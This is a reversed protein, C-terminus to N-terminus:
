LSISKIALEVLFLTQKAILLFGINLIFGLVIMYVTVRVQPRIFTFSDMNDFFVLKILRMYYGASIISLIILFISVYYFGDSVLPYLLYFKGYFGALPPVGALSFLSVAFIIAQVPNVNLQSLESLNQFTKGNLKVNSILIAFLVINVLVYIYTYLLGSQYGTFSHLSFAILVYGMNAITSYALLRKIKIQYLGGITGIVVSSIGSIFLLIFSYYSYYSFVESLLIFLVASMAIKPIIALFKTVLISAGQYVDPTWFHYPFASLKFLFASLIFIYSYFFVSNSYINDINLDGLTNVVSFNTSGFVYYILSIGFGLVCSIFAGLIFYRLGAETSLLSDKKYATLVYISLSLLEISFFLTIFDYSSVISFTAFLSILMIFIFEYGVLNDKHYSLASAFIAALAITLITKTLATFLNGYFFNNFILYSFSFTKFLLCILFFLSIIIFYIHFKTTNVKVNKYVLYNDLILCSPLFFLIIVLLYLEPLIFRFDFLFM